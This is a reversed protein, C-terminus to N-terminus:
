SKISQNDYVLKVLFNFTKEIRKTVGEIEWDNKSTQIKRTLIKIQNQLLKRELIIFEEVNIGKNALKLIRSHIKPFSITPFLDYRENFSEPYKFQWRFFDLESMFPAAALRYKVFSPMWGLDLTNVNEQTLYFELPDDSWKSFLIFSHILRDLCRTDGSDKASQFAAEYFIKIWKTMRHLWLRHLFHSLSHVWLGSEVLPNKRAELFTQFAVDRVKSPAHHNFVKNIIIECWEEDNAKRILKIAKDYHELKLAKQINRINNIRSTSSLKNM